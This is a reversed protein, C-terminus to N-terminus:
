AKQGDEEREVVVADGNQGFMWVAETFAKAESMVSLDYTGYYCKEGSITRSLKVKM